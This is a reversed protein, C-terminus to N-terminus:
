AEVLKQQWGPRTFVLTLLCCVFLLSEAVIVSIAPGVAGLVPILQWSVFLHIGLMLAVFLSSYLQQGRAILFHTLSYNIYAPIVSLGLIQLVPVAATFEAGYLLPIIFPAGFWFFIALGVALFALLFSSRLGLRRSRGPAHHLAHTFAPFVAALLAAPVIQTPEVLRYAASYDAVAASGLQFELLFVALRTYGISLFIAVGLPLAQGLLSVVGPRTEAELDPSLWGTRWIRWCVSIAVSGIALLYAVAVALLDGGLWLLGAGLIATLLRSLTLFWAEARLNQQGRYIYVGFELFTQALLALGLCFFIFRENDPRNSVLLWLLVVVPVALFLKIRFALRVVPRAAWGRAAVERTALLQLGLDALQTVVFALALGYSFVGFADQGLQQAILLALVFIALRGIAESGLKILANSRLQSILGLAQLQKHFWSM